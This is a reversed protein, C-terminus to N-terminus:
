GQVKACLAYMSHLCQAQLPPLPRLTRPEAPHDYQAHCPGRWALQHDMTLAISNPKIDTHVYFLSCAGQQLAMIGNAVDLLTVVLAAVPQVVVDQLTLDPYLLTLLCPEPLWCWADWVTASRLVALARSM